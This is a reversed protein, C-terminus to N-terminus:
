RHVAGSLHRLGRFKGATSFHHRAAGWNVLLETPGAPTAGAFSDDNGTEPAQM